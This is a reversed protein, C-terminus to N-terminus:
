DDELKFLRKYCKCCWAYKSARKYVAGDFMDSNDAEGQDYRFRFECTGKYTEKTFYEDHECYPCKKINKDIKM